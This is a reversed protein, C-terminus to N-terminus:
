VALNDESNKIENKIFINKNSEVAIGAVGNYHLDFLCKLCVLGLSDDNCAVSNNSIIFADLYWLQPLTSM